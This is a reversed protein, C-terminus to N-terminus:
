WRKSITLLVVHLKGDKIDDHPNDTIEIIDMYKYKLGTIYGTRFRYEVGASYVTEKAKFESFAAVSVPEILDQESPYFTGKIITHSIGADFSMNDEPVYSLVVSYDSASDQYPVSPDSLFIDPTIGSRYHIDQNVKNRMYLYSTTLSIDNLVHTTISGLFRDKRVDRDKASLNDNFDLNDRMERSITYSLLSSVRAGYIWTVSLRAEDLRNAETNYAPNKKDKHLYDSKINVGKLIRIDAALSVASTKTSGPLGWSDSHEREIEEFSYETILIIGKVPRYRVIGSVTDTISSLPPKITCSYNNGINNFPSCVDPIAVTDINEIDRENHKYKLFFTLKPMPMWVLNGAAMLYDARANSDSNERRTNTFTASAVLSGTYSSHINITNTSGKLEPTLNHPFAGASRVSGAPDGTSQADGYVDYLVKDGSIDLRKEEHSVDMEIIGLHSNLGVIINKTQRDVDRSQSTRVINNFFGSGSISKQQQDGDKQLISGGLYIHSPFDPTKLRLFFSTIGSQLDYRKDTDRIDVGPSLTSTDLDLLRINDLNHVLTRNIGRFYLIDKYAYRLEGFYDKKNRLDADIHLRHPYTFVRLEGGLSISNHLYEYEGAMGSGSHDVFRYGGAIFISPEIYPFEYETYEVENALSVGTTILL